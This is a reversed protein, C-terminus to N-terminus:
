LMKNRNQVIFNIKKIFENESFQQVHETFAKRDTFESQRKEFSDMCKILSDTTQEEFFMGTVNEKISDLAGGKKYALVPCGAANAEVPIIGFDEIGPFLLAKAKSLYDAIAQDSVRGTFTVLGSKTYEAAKKSKGDGIVVIKRGSKICAEIALDARKYGVLQGFFLYFDEPNRPNDIYKEIACPPYVVEANRKYYRNIRSAVYHSNAVFYDVLNSSSIDWLRLGPIMKKMFFKVIPNSKKFYEHYMDWLYRMPTHCYCIHFADPAPCVGKAPGSESSIILDYGTLDLEMLAKPMFPMYKQYLKRAMPFKNIKTTYVKHSRIIDSVADPNYVNTYIDAEPFMKCLTELVKEGGRMTVLWYHVLAVKM